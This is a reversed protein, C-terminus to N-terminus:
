VRATLPGKDLSNVLLNLLYWSLWWSWFIIFHPLFDSVSAMLSKSNVLKLPVFTHILSGTDYVLSFKGTPPSSIAVGSLILSQFFRPLIAWLIMWTFIDTNTKKNTAITGLCQFWQFVDWWIHHDRHKWWEAPITCNTRSTFSMGTCFYWTVPYWNLFHGRFSYCWLVKSHFSFCFINSDFLHKMPHVDLQNWQDKDLM